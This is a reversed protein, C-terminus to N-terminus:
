RSEGDEDLSEDVSPTRNGSAEKLTVTSGFPLMRGRVTEGMLWRPAIARIVGRSTCVHYQYGLKVKRPFSIVRGTLTGEGDAPPETPLPEVGSLLTFYSYNVEHRDLGSRAAVSQLISHPPVVISHFCFRQKWTLMPCVSPVCPAHVPTKGANLRTVTASVLRSINRLAPEIVVLAGGKKVKERMLRQVLRATEEEYHEEDFLENFVNVALVLDFRDERRTSLYAEISQPHNKRGEVRTGTAALAEIFKEQAGALLRDPEVLDFQLAGAFGRQQLVLSAGISATGAGAGLDLIELRKREQLGTAELAEFLPLWLKPIDTPLYFHLRAQLQDKREFTGDDSLRNYANSVSVAEYAIREVHAPPLRLHAQELYDSFRRGLSAIVERSFPSAVSVIRYDM